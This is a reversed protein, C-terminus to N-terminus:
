RQRRGNMSAARTAVAPGDFVKDVSVPYRRRWNPHEDITGPLNPQDELGLLDELPLLMLPAPAAGVFRVAADVVPAPDDAPPAATSVAGAAQFAEWLEKRDSKRAQELRKGEGHSDILGTREQLKIDAGTWWGAVTPLDHTATM